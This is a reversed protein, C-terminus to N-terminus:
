RSGNITFKRIQNSVNNKTYMVEVDTELMWDIAALDMQLVNQYVPTGSERVMEGMEIFRYFRREGSKNLFIIEDDQNFEVGAKSYMKATIGQRGSHLELSYTYNGRVVLTQNTTKLVHIDNLIRDDTILSECQAQLTTPAFLSLILFALLAYRM